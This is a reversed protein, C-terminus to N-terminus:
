GKKNVFSKYAIAKYEARSVCLSTRTSTRLEVKIHTVTFPASLISRDTLEVYPQGMTSLSEKSVQCTMTM